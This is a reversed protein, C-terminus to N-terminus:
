ETHMEETHMEEGLELSGEEEGEFAQEADEAADGAPSMGESVITREEAEVEKNGEAAMYGSM